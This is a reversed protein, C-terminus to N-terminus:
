LNRPLTGHIQFQLRGPLLISDATAVNLFHSPLCFPPWFEDLFRILRWFHGLFYFLHRFADLFDFLRLFKSLFCILFRFDFFAALPRCLALKLEWNVVVDHFLTM